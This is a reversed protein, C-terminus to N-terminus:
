LAYVEPEVEVIPIEFSLADRMITLLAGADLEDIFPHLVQAAVEPLSMVPLRALAERDWVPISEPVYLGGDPALGEFLAFGFSVASTDPAHPDARTTVFRM